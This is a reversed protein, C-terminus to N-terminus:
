RGAEAVPEPQGSAVWSALEEYEVALQDACVGPDIEAERSILRARAGPCQRAVDALLSHGLLHVSKSDDLVILRGTRAVSELIRQWPAPHVYNVGFVGASMGQERLRQHLMWGHPFSFNACVITADEGPSYQLVAGAGDDALVEPALAETPFLRQSLAILRFGPARLQAPVIRAADSANTLAYGPVRALSCLDGLANFSSQPGQWGQDCVIVCITFSGLRAPDRHARVVNYTSIFHDIGLVIFDLQKVFLISSVGAMMLGFGVGCHTLECNGVNILRGGPPTKLNRTMGCIHSGTNINEGYLVLNPIQASASAIVQNVAQLYSPMVRAGGPGM